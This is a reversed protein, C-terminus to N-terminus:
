HVSLATAAPTQGTPVSNEGVFSIQLPGHTIFIRGTESRLDTMGTSIGKYFSTM